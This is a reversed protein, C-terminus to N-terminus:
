VWDQRQLPLSHEAGKRGESYASHLDRTKNYERIFWGQLISSRMQSRKKKKKKKKNHRRQHQKQQLSKKQFTRHTPAEQPGKSDGKGGESHKKKKKQKEVKEPSPSQEPNAIKHKQQEPIYKRQMCGVHFHEFHNLKDYLWIASVESMVRDSGSHVSRRCRLRDCQAGILFPCHLQWHLGHLSVM